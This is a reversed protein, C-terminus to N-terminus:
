DDNEREKIKQLENHAAKVKEAFEKGLEKINQNKEDIFELGEQLNSCGFKKLEETASELRGSLRDFERKAKDLNERLENWMQVTEEENPQNRKPM